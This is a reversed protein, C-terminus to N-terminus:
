VNRKHINIEPQFLRKCNKHYKYRNVNSIPPLPVYSRMRNISYNGDFSSNDSIDMDNDYGNNSALVM